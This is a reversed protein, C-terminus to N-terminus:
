LVPWWFRPRRYGQGGDCGAECTDDQQRLELRPLFLAMDTDVPLRGGFVGLVPENESDGKSWLLLCRVAGNVCEPAAGDLQFVRLTGACPRLFLSALAEPLAILSESTRILMGTM